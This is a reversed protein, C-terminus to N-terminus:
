FIRHEPEVYSFPQLLYPYEHNVRPLMRKIETDSTGFFRALRRISYDDMCLQRLKKWHFFWDSDRKIHYSVEKEVPILKEHM